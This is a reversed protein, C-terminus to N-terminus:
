VPLRGTESKPLFHLAEAEMKLKSKIVGSVLKAASEVECNTQECYLVIADMYSLNKQEVLLEIRM